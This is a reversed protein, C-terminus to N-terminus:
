IHHFLKLLWYIVILIQVLFFTFRILVFTNSASILHTISQALRAGLFTLALGDTAATQETAIAYLLVIAAAPLMEYCNAHARTLRKGFGDVDDGTAVFSNAARGKAMVLYTRFAGLGMVLLLTWAVLSLLVMATPIMM